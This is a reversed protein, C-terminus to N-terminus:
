LHNILNFSRFVIAKELHFSIYKEFFTLAVRKYENDFTIKISDTLVVLSLSNILRLIKSNIRYLNNSNKQNDSIKHGDSLSLYLFDKDSALKSNEGFDFEFGMIQCLRILFALFLSFPNNFNLNLINLSEKVLKFLEVNQENEEQTLKLTEIIAFGFSMQELSDTLGKMQSILEANSLLHLHSGSKKYYTTYIQSMPELSAGFKSKSSRASKAILNIKGDEKTYLTVIKSTDGYKKANLVIAESKIIM